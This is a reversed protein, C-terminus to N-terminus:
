QKHNLAILIQQYLQPDHSKTISGIKNGADKISPGSIYVDEEDIFIYDDLNLVRITHSGGTEAEGAAGLFLPAVLLSALLVLKSKRM